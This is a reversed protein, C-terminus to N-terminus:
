KPKALIAEVRTDFFFHSNAARLMVVTDAGEGTGAVTIVRDGANVLGADVCMCSLEYSVKFGECVTRLVNAVIDEILYTKYKRRVARAFGALTHSTTLVPIDKDELDSRVEEDMEDVNPEYFGYSHSVVILKSNEIIEAAKKATYGATSAVIVYKAKFKDLSESAIRLAEETNEPGEVDFITAEYNM